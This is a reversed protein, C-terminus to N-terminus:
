KREKLRKIRKDVTNLADIWGRCFGNMSNMTKFIEKNKEAVIIQEKIIKEIDKISALYGLNFNYEATDKIIQEDM